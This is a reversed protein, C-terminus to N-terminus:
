YSDPEVIIEYGCRCNIINGASGKPDGPYELAEGGIDFDQGYPVRQNDADMHDPRSRSDFTSIWVKTKNGPLEDAGVKVGESSAGVVETRAIRLAKWSDIEGQMRVIERAIKDMGWGENIGMEVAKQAVAQIDAYATRIVKSIKNGGRTRVMEIIKSIWMDEDVAGAPTIVDADAKKQLNGKVGKMTSRAFAIGTRVYFKEYAAWVISEDIVVSNVGALLEDPTNRNELAAKISKRIEGYMGKFLRDGM